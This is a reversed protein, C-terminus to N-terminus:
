RGGTMWHIFMGYVILITMVTLFMVLIQVAGSLWLLGIRTPLSPQANSSERAIIALKDHDARARERMDMLAEYVVYPFAVGTHEAGTDLNIAKWGDGDRAIVIGASVLLQQIATVTDKM